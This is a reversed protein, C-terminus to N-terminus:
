REQAEEARELAEMVARAKNQVEVYEKEPVSGEVIGAGAQVHVKGDKKVAMRIAICLDMNGTFDIYGIAGGYIGRRSNELEDLIEMARKKPAGSLTGAPLMASIVDLPDKDKKLKGTVHSSIHMIHSYRLVRLYDSLEVSGFRSVKGLDNRGLDVLMNHESLEKEDTLLEKELSKDEKENKGRPRSGALPYTGLEGDQLSVLTEPSSGAIELDGCKFYIMYPSPNITRLLRYVPLMSGEFDATYRNSAVAQFIDGEKIHARINEVMAAFQKETKQPVFPSNVRGTVHHHEMTEYIMDAMNNLEVIARNYNAELHDTKINCILIIKQRLQDYVIIKDFLLLECDAFDFDDKANLKLTPEAYKAYDYSFYGVFGGTFPPLYSIRPSKYQELIKRISDNPTQTEECISIGSDFTIKGDKCVLKAIPDFGLFSYRGWKEGNEISELLYYRSSRESINKLVEIPTKVDSFIEMSIPVISYGSALKEAENLSPRIM